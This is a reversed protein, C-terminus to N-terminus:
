KTSHLDDQCVDYTRHLPEVHLVAVTEDVAVVGLLVHKDVLCRNRAVVWALVQAADAVSLLDLEVNYGALLARLRGVHSTRVALRDLAALIGGVLARRSDGTDAKSRPEAARGDSTAAKQVVEADVVAM